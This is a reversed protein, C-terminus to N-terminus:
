KRRALEDFWAFVDALAVQVIALHETDAYEKYTVVAERGQLARQLARAGGLGFDRDGAAVFFPRAALDTKAGVRGGGGLAATAAYRAFDRGTAAAIAHQAGMSHGIVFVRARDIPFHAALADLVEGVAGGVNGPAAVLWGRAQALAVVKGAGYADFFMNESGGAGHLVLVVPRPEGKAEPAWVRVPVSRRGAPAAFWLEGSKAPSSVRGAALAAAIAEVEDLWRAFPLDTEPVDGQAAREVQRHLSRWTARAVDLVAGDDKPTAATLRAALEPVLSVRVRSRAVCVEGVFLEARLWHDGPAAGALPLSLQAAGEVSVEGEVPAAMRQGDEALLALRARLAVREGEFAYAPACEIALAPTAADVCRSSPAFALSEAWLVAPPVAEVALAQRAADLAAAARGLNMGFFAQVASQLHPTARPRLAPAAAELAQEMARTRRGLEYRSAQATLASALLAVIAVARM